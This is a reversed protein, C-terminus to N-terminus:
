LKQRHLDNDLWLSHMHVFAHGRRGCGPNSEPALQWSAQCGWECSREEVQIMGWVRPEVPMLASGERSGWLGLPSHSSCAQLSHFPMSPNVQLPVLCLLCSPKGSTSSLSSLSEAGFGDLCFLAGWGSTMRGAGGFACVHGLGETAEGHQACLLVLIKFDM